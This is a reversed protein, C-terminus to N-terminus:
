ILIHVPMKAKESIRNLYLNQAEINLPVYLYRNMLCCLVRGDDLYGLCADNTRTAIDRKLIRFHPIGKKM